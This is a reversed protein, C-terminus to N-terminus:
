SLVPNQNMAGQSSTLALTQYRCPVLEKQIGDPLSYGTQATCFCNGDLDLTACFKNKEVLVRKLVQKSMPRRVQRRLCASGSLMKGVVPEELSGLQEPSVEGLVELLLCMGEVAAVALPVQAGLVSALLATLRELM